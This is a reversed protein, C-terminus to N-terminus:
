PNDVYAHVAFPPVGLKEAKRDEMVGSWIIRMM